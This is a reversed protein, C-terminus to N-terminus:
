QAAVRFVVFNESPISGFVFPLRDGPSFYFDAGMAGSLDSVFSLTEAGFSEVYLLGRPPSGYNNLPVIILDGAKCQPRSEDLSKAGRLQMYYQFGWHGTFWVTQQSRNKMVKEAAWRNALASEYDALMVLVGVVGGAVGTLIQARSWRAQTLHAARREVLRQVLICAPPVLPLISRANVSWNLKAAFVFVGGTWCILFVSQRPHHRCVWLDYLCIGAILTGLAALCGAQLDFPWGVSWGGPTDLLKSAALVTAGTLLLLLTAARLGLTVAGVGVAALVGGGVFALADLFKASGSSGNTRAYSAAFHVAGFFMAHGYHILTFRNYAVIVSLPIGLAAVQALRKRASSTFLASHTILLPFLCVSPFKTLAALALLGGAAFFWGTNKEGRQWALLAWIWLCLMPVECMLSTSSVLFAPCVVLLVAPPLAARCFQKALFYTGIASLISFPLMALHLTSEGWGAFKGVLALYYPFLPPNMTAFHMPEVHGSWNVDVGYFDLPHAVIQQAAWIYMPDDLHVPKNLVPILLGLCLLVLIPVDWLGSRRPFVPPEGPIASAVDDAAASTEAPIVATTVATTM